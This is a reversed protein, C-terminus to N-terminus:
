TQRNKLAKQKDYQQIAYVIAYLCWVFRYTYEKVTCEWFDEFRFGNSEFRNVAGVAEYESDAYYLVESKVDEWIKSKLEDDSESELYMDFHNKIEETFLDASWEMSGDVRDVSQLKEHWYGKNINLEDDTVRFFRFMDDIRSFVFCGMDGSICLYDPWTTINYKMNFSGDGMVIYRFVGDEKLSQMQHNEVNRLFQERINHNDM